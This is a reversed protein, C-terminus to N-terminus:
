YKRNVTLKSELDKFDLEINAPEVLKIFMFIQICSFLILPPIHKFLHQPNTVSVLDRQTMTVFLQTCSILFMISIIITKLSFISPPLFLKISQNYCDFLKFFLFFLIKVSTWLLFLIWLLVSNIHSLFIPFVSLFFLVKIAIGSEFFIEFTRSLVKCLIILQEENIM